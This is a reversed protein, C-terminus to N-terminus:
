NLFFSSTTSGIIRKFFIFFFYFFFFDSMFKYFVSRLFIYQSNTLLYVHHKVDVSIM